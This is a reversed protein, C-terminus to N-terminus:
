DVEMITTALSGIAKGIPNGSNSLLRAALQAAALGFSKVSTHSTNIMQASSRNALQTLAPSSPATVPAYSQLTVYNFNLTFELNLILELDLCYTYSLPGGIIEIKITDWFNPIVTNSASPAVLSRSEVGIPRFVVPVEMGATLSHSSTCVGYSESYGVTSGLVPFRAMRTVQIFGQTTFATPMNRIVLGASVIRYENLYTSLPANGPTAFTTASITFNAGTDTASTFSYAFEPSVHVLARGNASTPVSIHGRVQAVMTSAGNGDPWKAGKAHECFPDTLSCIKQVAGGPKKNLNINPNGTPKRVAPVLPLAPPAKAKSKRARKKNSRPANM